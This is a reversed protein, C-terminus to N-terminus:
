QTPLARTHTNTHTHTSPQPLLSYDVHSGWKDFIWVPSHCFFLIEPSKLLSADKTQFTFHHVCLITWWFDVNPLLRGKNIRSVVAWAAAHVHSSKIANCIHSTRKQYVYSPTKLAHMTSNEKVAVRRRHCTVNERKCLCQSSKRGNGSWRYLSAM